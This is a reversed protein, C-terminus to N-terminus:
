SVSEKNKRCSTKSILYGILLYVLGQVFLFIMKDNFDHYLLPIGLKSCILGAITCFPFSLLGVLIDYIGGNKPEISLSVIGIVVGFIMTQIITEAQRSKKNEAELRM